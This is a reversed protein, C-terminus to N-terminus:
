LSCTLNGDVNSVGKDATDSFTLSLCALDAPYIPGMLTGLDVGTVLIRENMAKCYCYM